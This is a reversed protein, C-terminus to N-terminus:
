LCHCTYFWCVEELAIGDFPALMRISADGYSVIQCNHPFAAKTLFQHILVPKFVCAGHQFYPRDMRLNIVHVFPQKKLLILRQHHLGVHLM